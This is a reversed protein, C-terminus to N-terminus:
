SLRDWHVRPRFRLDAAARRSLTHTRIGGPAQTHTPLTTHQWASIEAVLQDSTRLPGVSQPADSHSRSVKHNLLGQGVPPPWRTLFLFYTLFFSLFFFSSLLASSVSLSKQLERQCQETGRPANGSILDGNGEMNNVMIRGAVSVSTLCPSM